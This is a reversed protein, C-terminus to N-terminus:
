WYSEATAQIPADSRIRNSCVNNIVLVDNNIINQTQCVEGTMAWENCGDKSSELINTKAAFISRSDFVLMGIDFRVPM